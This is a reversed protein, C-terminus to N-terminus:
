YADLFTKIVRRNQRHTHAVNNAQIDRNHPTNLTIYRNSLYRHRKFRDFNISRKAHEVSKYFIYNEVCYRKLESQLEQWISDDYNESDILSKLYKRLDNDMVVIDYVINNSHHAYKDFIQREVLIINKNDVTIVYENGTHVDEKSSEFFRRGQCYSAFKVNNGIKQKTEIRNLLRSFKGRKPTKRINYEIDM